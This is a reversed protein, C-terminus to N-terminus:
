VNEVGGAEYLEVLALQIDTIDQQMQEMQTKEEKQAEESAKLEEIQAKANEEYSLSKNPIYPEYQHIVKKGNIYIYYGNETVEYTYTNEMFNGGKELNNRGM